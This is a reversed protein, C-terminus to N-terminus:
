RPPASHGGSMRRKATAARSGRRGWERLREIRAAKREEPTFSGVAHLLDRMHAASDFPGGDKGGYNGAKLRAAAAAREEPAVEDM